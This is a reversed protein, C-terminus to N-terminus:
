QLLVQMIQQGLLMKTQHTAQDVFLELTAVTLPPVTEATEAPVAVIVTVVSSPLLVALQVTVTVSTATLPTVKFLDDNVIARKPGSVNVAVTAGDYAVLLFTVQLM